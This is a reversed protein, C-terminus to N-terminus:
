ILSASDGALLRQAVQGFHYKGKEADLTFVFVVDFRNGPWKQPAQEGGPIANAIASINEHQWAILVTGRSALAAAVLSKEQGKSFDLNIPLNLLQALSTLTEEPRRSKTNNPNSDDSPASAFLVDPTALLPDQLPGRAPAFLCALAGARQWGRVILAHASSDGSEKVGGINGTPKEAHRIVMIKTANPPM